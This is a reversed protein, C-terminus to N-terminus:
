GQLGKVTRKIFEEDDGTLRRRSKTQFEVTAAFSGAVTSLGMESAYLGFKAKVRPPATQYSTPSM